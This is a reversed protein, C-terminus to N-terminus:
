QRWNFSPVTLLMEDPAKASMPWAGDKESLRTSTDRALQPQRTSGQVLVANRLHLTSRSYSPFVVLADLRRTMLGSLLGLLEGGVVTM